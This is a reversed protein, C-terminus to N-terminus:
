KYNLELGVLLYVVNFDEIAENIDSIGADLVINGCGGHTVAAGYQWHIGKITIGYQM